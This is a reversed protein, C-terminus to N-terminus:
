IYRNPNSKRPGQPYKFDLDLLLRSGDQFLLAGMVQFYTKPACLFLLVPRRADPDSPSSGM